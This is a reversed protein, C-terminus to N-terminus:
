TVNQTLERKIDGRRAIIPNGKGMARVASHMYWDSLSYRIWERM